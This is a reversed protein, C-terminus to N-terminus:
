NLDHDCDVAVESEVTFFLLLYVLSCEAIMMLRKHM